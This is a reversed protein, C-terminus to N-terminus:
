ISIRLRNKCFKRVEEIRFPEFYRVTSLDNGNNSENARELAKIIEQPSEVLTVRSDGFIDEHVRYTLEKLILLRKGSDLAEYASTTQIVLVSRSMAIVDKISIDNYIVSVNDLASLEEKIKEFEYKQQPHLKLCIKGNYGLESMKMIVDMFRSNYASTSIITLDYKNELIKVESAFSNGSVFIEDVPFFDKIKDTWFKSFTFLYKPLAFREPNINPSYSYALHSYYIIGHQMEVVPINLKKASRYLGTQVGGPIIFISNPKMLKLYHDYCKKEIRYCLVDDELLAWNVTTSFHQKIARSFYSPICQKGKRRNLLKCVKFVLTRFGNVHSNYVYGNRNYVSDIIFSKDGLLKYIDMINPDYYLGDANQYRSTVFLLTKKRNFFSAIFFKVSSKLIGLRDKRIPNPADPVNVGLLADQIMYYIHFRIAEWTEWDEEKIETSEFNHFKRTLKEIFSIDNNNM